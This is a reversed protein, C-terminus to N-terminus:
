LDELGLAHVLDQRKSAYCPPSAVSSSRLTRDATCGLSSGSGGDRLSPKATRFEGQRHVPLNTHSPHDEQLYRGGTPLSRQDSTGAHPATTASDLRANECVNINFATDLDTDFDLAARALKTHEDIARIGAWGSWQVLRGVRYIYLGQQRNWKLPGSM